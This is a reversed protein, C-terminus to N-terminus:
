RRRRLVAVIEVHASYLFQDIPTVSEIAYGGDVLSRLDRALTGADCSVAVVTAIGSKALEGAQNRAGARPPDFVAADFGTLERASLPERFLDRVKTEVPKLGQRVRVAATLAAIAAADSDLALVRATRALGFTFTGIGCFLDAVRKAGAAADLVLRSMAQEAEAVAQVFVGPPVATEVGGIALTPAASQLITEGAVTLRAIGNATAIRALRAAAAGAVRAKGADVAIDLGAAAALVTLRMREAPLAAAVARLAPLAGAIAPQLVPCEEIAILDHTRQAHYGLAINEGRRQASLVARRRSAPPVRVLPAVEAELGRQALAAVVGERKWRAYLAESMHQAACGGCTGFHRCVPPVRDPSPASLLDPLGEVNPRVTEGPLAFAVFRREAGALAVGDGQAGLGTVELAQASNVDPRGRM